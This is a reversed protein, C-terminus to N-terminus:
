GDKCWREKDHDLPVALSQAFCSSDSGIKGPIVSSSISWTTDFTFLHVRSRRLWPSATDSLCNSGSSGGPPLTHAVSPCSLSLSHDPVTVHPMPRTPQTNVRRDRHDTEPVPSRVQHPHQDLAGVARNAPDTVGV